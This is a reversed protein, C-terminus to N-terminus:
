APSAVCRLLVEASMECTIVGAVVVVVREDDGLGDVAPCDTVSVAVMVDEVPGAGPPETVKLDPVRERPEAVRTPPTAM